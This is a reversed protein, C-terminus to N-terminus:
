AGRVTKFEKRDLAGSGDSDAEIFLNTLRKQLEAGALVGGRGGAARGGVAGGSAVKHAFYQAGFEYINVPQERLVERAFDKVVAPFGDPLTFRRSYRAM